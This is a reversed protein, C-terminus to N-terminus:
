ESEVEAESGADLTEGAVPLVVHPASVSDAAQSSTDKFTPTKDVTFAKSTFKHGCKTCQWVGVFVRRVNATRCSPCMHKKRLEAEIVGVRARTKRGYRVGLRKHPGTKASNSEAM